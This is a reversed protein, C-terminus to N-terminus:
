RGSSIINELIDRFGGLAPFESSMGRLAKLVGAKIRSIGLKGKSGTIAAKSMRALCSGAEFFAFAAQQPIRSCKPDHPLLYQTLLETIALSAQLCTKVSPDKSAQSPPLTMIRQSARPQHLSLLAYNYTIHLFCLLWPSDSTLSPQFGASHISLDRYRAPLADWWLRMEEDVRPLDRSYEDSDRAEMGFEDDWVRVVKLRGVAISEMHKTIGCDPEMIGGQKRVSRYSMARTLLLRAEILHVYVDPENQIVLAPKIDQEDLLSSHPPTEADMAWGMLQDFMLSPSAPMYNPTMLGPFIPELAAPDSTFLPPRSEYVIPEPSALATPDATEWLRESSPLKVPYESPILRPRAFSASLWSDILYCCWWVRRQREKELWSIPEGSSREDPDVDFGLYLALRAAMSTFAGAAQVEGLGFAYRELLLLAIITDCNPTTEVMETVLSRALRYFVEGRQCWQTSVGNIIAEQKSHQAGLACVSYLLLKNSIQRKGVLDLFSPRHLLNLPALPHHYLFYSESLEQLDLMDTLKLRFPREISHIPQPRKPIIPKHRIAVKSRSKSSRSSQQSQQQKMQLQLEKLRKKLEAAYALHKPDAFDEEANYFPDFDCKLEATKCNGCIPAVGDCKRKRRRCHVCAHSIKKRAATRHRQQPAAALAIQPQQIGNGLSEFSMDLPNFTSYSPTGYEAYEEDDEQMLNPLLHPSGWSPTNLLEPEYDDITALTVSPGTDWTSAPQHLAILNSSTQNPSTLTPIAVNNAALLDVITQYLRQQEDNSPMPGSSFMPAMSVPTSAM